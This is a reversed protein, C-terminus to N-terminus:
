SYKEDKKWNLVGVLLVPIFNTNIIDHLYALTQFRNITRDSIIDLIEMVLSFVFGPILLRWDKLSKRLILFSALYFIFGIHMHIADRTLGLLADIIPKLSQYYLSIYTM